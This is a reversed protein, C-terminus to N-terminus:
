IQGIKELLIKAGANKTAKIDEMIDDDILAKIRKKNEESSSEIM